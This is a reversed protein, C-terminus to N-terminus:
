LAGTKSNRLLPTLLGAGARNSALQPMRANLKLLSKFNTFEGQSLSDCISVSKTWNSQTLSCTNNKLFSSTLKIKFRIGWGSLPFVVAPFITKSKLGFDNLRSDGQQTRLALRYCLWLSFETGHKETSLKLSLWRWIFSSFSLFYMLIAVTCKGQAEWKPYGLLLWWSIFEPWFIYSQLSEM